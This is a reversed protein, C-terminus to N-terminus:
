KGLFTRVAKRNSRSVYYSKGDVAIVDYDFDKIHRSNVLRNSDIQIFGSPEMINKIQIITSPLYYVGCRAEVIIRRTNENKYICFVESLELMLMNDDQDFVPMPM